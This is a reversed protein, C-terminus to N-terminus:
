MSKANSRWLMHDDFCEGRPKADLDDLCGEIASRGLEHADIGAHHDHHGVPDRIWARTAEADRVLEAVQEEFVRRVIRLM